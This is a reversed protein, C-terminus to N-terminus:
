YEPIETCTYSVDAKENLLALLCELERREFESSIHGIQVYLEMSRESIDLRPMQANITKYTNIKKIFEVVTKNFIENSKTRFNLHVLFRDRYYGRIDCKLPDDVTTKSAIASSSLLLCFIGLVVKM